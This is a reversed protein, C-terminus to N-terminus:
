ATAAREGADRPGSERLARLKRLTERYEDETEFIVGHTRDRRMGEFTEILWPIREAFQDRIDGGIALECVLFGACFTCLEPAAWDAAAHERVLPADNRLSDCIRCREVPEVRRRRHPWLLRMLPRM